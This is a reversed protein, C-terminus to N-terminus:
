LHAILDDGPNGKYREEYISKMIAPDIEFPKPMDFSPPNKLV